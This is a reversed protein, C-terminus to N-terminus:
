DDRTKKDREGESSRDTSGAQGHRRRSAQGRSYAALTETTISLDRHTLHTLDQRLAERAKRLEEEIPQERSLTTCLVRAARAAGVLFDDNTDLAFYLLRRFCETALVYEQRDLLDHGLEWAVSSFFLPDGGQQAADLIKPILTGTTMHDQDPLSSVRLAFTDDELRQFRGLRHSRLIRRANTSRFLRRNERSAM